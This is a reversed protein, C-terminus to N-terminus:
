QFCGQLSAKRDTRSFRLEPSAAERFLECKEADLTGGEALVAFLRM